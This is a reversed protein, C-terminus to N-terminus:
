SRNLEPLTVQDDSDAEWRVTQGHVNVIRGAGHLRRLAVIVDDEEAGMVLAGQRVVHGVQLMAPRGPSSLEARLWAQLGEELDENVLVAKFRYESPGPSSGPWHTGVGPFVVQFRRDGVVILAGSVLAENLVDAKEAPAVLRYNGQHQGEVRVGDVEIARESM